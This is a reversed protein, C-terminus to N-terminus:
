LDEGTPTNHFFELTSPGGAIRGLLGLHDPVGGRPPDPMFWLDIRRTDAPVEADTEPSWSRTAAAIEDASRYRRAAALRRAHGPGFRWRIPGNQWSPDVPVEIRDLM